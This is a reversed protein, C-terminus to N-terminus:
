VRVEGSREEIGGGLPIFLQEDDGEDRSVGAQTKKGRTLKSVPPKEVFSKYWPDSTQRGWGEEVREAQRSTEWSTVGETTWDSYEGEGRADQPWVADTYGRRRRSNSCHSDELESEPREWNPVRYCDWFSELSEERGGERIETREETKDQPSIRLRRRHERERNGDRPRELNMSKEEKRSREGERPRVLECGRRYERITEVSGDRIEDRWSSHNRTTYDSRRFKVRERKERLEREERGGKEQVWKSMGLTSEMATGWQTRPPAPPLPGTIQVPRGAITPVNQAQFQIM